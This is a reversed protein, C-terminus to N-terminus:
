LRKYSVFECWSEPRGSGATQYCSRHGEDSWGWRICKFFSSLLWNASVTLVSFQCIRVCQRSSVSPFPLLESTSPSNHSRNRTLQKMLFDVQWLLQEKVLFLPWSHWTNLATTRQMVKSWGSRPGAEERETEFTKPWCCARPVLRVDYVSLRSTYMEM